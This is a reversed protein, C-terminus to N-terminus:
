DPWDLGDFGTLINRYEEASLEIAEAVDSLLKLERGCVEGDAMAVGHAARIIMRKEDEKLKAGVAAAYARVGIGDNKAQRIEERVEQESMPHNTIWEYLGIIAAIEGTFVVDDALMMLVMFRKVVSYYPNEQDLGGGLSAERLADSTFSSSCLKCEITQEPGAIKAGAESAEPAITGRILGGCKPCHFVGTEAKGAVERPSSVVM